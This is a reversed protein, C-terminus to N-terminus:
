GIAKTGIQRNVAIQEGEGFPTREGPLQDTGQWIEPHPKTAHLLYAGTANGPSKKLVSWCRPPGLFPFLGPDHVPAKAELTPWVSWLSVTVITGPRGKIFNWFRGSYNEFGAL